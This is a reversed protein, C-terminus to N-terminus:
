SANYIIKKAEENKNIIEKFFFSILKDYGDLVAKFESNIKYTKQFLYAEELNNKRNWFFFFLLSIILGLIPLYIFAKKILNGVGM